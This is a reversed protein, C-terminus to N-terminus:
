FHLQRSSVIGATCKKPPCVEREKISDDDTLQTGDIECRGVV